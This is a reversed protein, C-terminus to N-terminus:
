RQDVKRVRLPARPPATAALTAAFAAEPAEGGVAPTTAPVEIARTYPALRSVLQAYIKPNGAVV